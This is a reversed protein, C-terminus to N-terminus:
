GGDVTLVPSPMSPAGALAAVAAACCAAVGTSVDLCMCMCMRHVHVLGLPSVCCVESAITVPYEDSFGAVHGDAYRGDIPRRWGDGADGLAAAAAAAAEASRDSGAPFIHSLHRLLRCTSPGNTFRLSRVAGARHGPRRLAETAIEHGTSCM